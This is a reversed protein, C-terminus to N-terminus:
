ASWFAPSRRTTRFSPLVLLQCNASLGHHFVAPSAIRNESRPMRFKCIRGAGVAEAFLDGPTGLDIELRSAARKHTAAGYARMSERRAAERLLLISRTFRIRTCVSLATRLTATLGQGQAIL